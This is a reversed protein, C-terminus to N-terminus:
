LISRLHLVVDIAINEDMKTLQGLLIEKYCNKGPMRDLESEHM